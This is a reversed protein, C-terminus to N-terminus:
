ILASTVAPAPLREFLSSRSELVDLMLDRTSAGTVYNDRRVYWEGPSAATQSGVAQRVVELVSRESAVNVAV